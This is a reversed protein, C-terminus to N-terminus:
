SSLLSLSSGGRAGGFRVVENGMSAFRSERARGLHRQYSMVDSPELQWESSSTSEILARAEIDVDDIGVLSSESSAGMIGSDRWATLRCCVGRCAWRLM